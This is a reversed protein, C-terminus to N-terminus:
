KTPPLGLQRGQGGRSMRIVGRRRRGRRVPAVQRICIMEKNVSPWCSNLKRGASPTEDATATTEKKSMGGTSGEVHHISESRFPRNQPAERMPTSDLASSTPLQTRGRTSGCTSDPLACVFAASHLLVLRWVFSADADRATM